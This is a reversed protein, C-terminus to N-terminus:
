FKKKSPTRTLATVKPFRRWARALVRALLRPLLLRSLRWMSHFVGDRYSQFCNGHTSDGRDMHISCSRVDNRTMCGDAALIDSSTMQFTTKPQPLSRQINPPRWIIINAHPLCSALRPLELKPGPPSSPGFPYSLDMLVAWYLSM